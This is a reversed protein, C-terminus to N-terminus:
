KILQSIHTYVMFHPMDLAKLAPTPYQTAWCGIGLVVVNNVSLHSVAPSRTLRPHPPRGGSVNTNAGPEPPKAARVLHLVLHKKSPKARWVEWRLLGATDRTNICFIMGQPPRPAAFGG